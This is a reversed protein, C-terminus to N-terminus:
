VEPAKLPVAWRLQLFIYSLKHPVVLVTEPDGCDGSENVVSMTAKSHDGNGTSGVSVDFRKGACAITINPDDGFVFQHSSVAIGQLLLRQRGVGMGRTANEFALVSCEPDGIVFV